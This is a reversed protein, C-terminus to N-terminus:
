NIRRLRLVQVYLMSDGGRDVAAKDDHGMDAMDM